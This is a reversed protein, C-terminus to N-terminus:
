LPRWPNCRYDFFCATTKHYGHTILLQEAVTVAPEIKIQKPPTCVGLRTFDDLERTEIEFTIRHRV